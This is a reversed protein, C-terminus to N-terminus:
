SADADTYIVSIKVTETADLAAYLATGQASAYHYAPYPAFAKVAGERDQLKWEDKINGSTDDKITTTVTGQAQIDLYHVKIVKGTVAAVINGSASALFTATKYTASALNVTVAGSDPTLKENGAELTLASTSSATMYWVTWCVEKNLEITYIQNAKLTRYEEMDATPRPTKQLKIQADVSGVTIRLVRSPSIEQSQETTSATLSYNKM